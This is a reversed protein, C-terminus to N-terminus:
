LSILYCNNGAGTKSQMICKLKKSCTVTAFAAIQNALNVLGIIHEVDCFSTHCHIMHCVLTLYYPNSSDKWCKKNGHNCILSDGEFSHCLITSMTAMVDCSSQGRLLEVKRMLNM